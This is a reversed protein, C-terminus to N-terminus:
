RVDWVYARFSSICFQWYRLGSRWVVLVHLRWLWCVLFRWFIRRAAAAERAGAELGRKQSELFNMLQLLLNVDEFSFANAKWQSEFWWDFVTLKWDRASASAIASVGPAFATPPVHHSPQGHVNMHLTHAASRVGGSVAPSPSAGLSYALPPPAASQWTHPRTWFEDQRSRFMM